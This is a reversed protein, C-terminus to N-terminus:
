PRDPDLNGQDTLQMVATWTFLKSVSGPRFLTTEASVPKKNAYDSYGYGKAFLLKGDKVVAITAGAIDDAQLQLPVIGDLFTELDQATIEHVGTSMKEAPVQEAGPKTQPKPPTPGQGWALSAVNLSLLMLVIFKKM